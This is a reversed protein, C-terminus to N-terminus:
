DWDLDNLGRGTGFGREPWSRSERDHAAVYIALIATTITSATPHLACAGLVAAVGVQLQRRYTPNSALLTEHDDWIKQAFAVARTVHRRIVRLVPMALGALGSM